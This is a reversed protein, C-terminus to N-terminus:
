VKFPTAFNRLDNVDFIVVTWNTTYMKAIKHEFATQRETKNRHLTVLSIIIQMQYDPSM